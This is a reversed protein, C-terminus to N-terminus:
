FRYSFLKFTLIVHSMYKLLSSGTKMYLTVLTYTLFKDTMIPSFSFSTDKIKVHIEHILYILHILLVYIHM